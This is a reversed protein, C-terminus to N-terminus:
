PAAHQPLKQAAADAPLSPISRPASAPAGCSARISLRVPARELRRPLVPNALRERLCEVARMGTEAGYLSVGTISPSRLAFASSDQLSLVAVDDPVRLGKRIALDISLCAPTPSIALVARPPPFRRYLDEPVSFSASGDLALLSSSPAERKSWVVAEDASLGRERAVQRFASITREDRGEEPPFYGALLLLRRHGIRLVHDVAMSVAGEYDPELVDARLSGHPTGVLVTPYRTEVEGIVPGYWEWAGAVVIGKAVPTRLRELHRKVAQADSIYSLIVQYGIESTHRSLSSFFDAYLPDAFPSMWKFFLVELRNSETPAAVIRTGRGIERSLLGQKELERLAGRVTIRTVGYQGCLARESPLFSGVPHLGSAIDKRLSDALQLYKPGKKKM